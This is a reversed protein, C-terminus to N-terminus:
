KSKCPGSTNQSYFSLANGERRSSTNVYAVPDEAFTRPEHTQTHSAIRNLSFFRSLMITSGIYTEVPFVAATKQQVGPQRSDSEHTIDVRIRELVVHESQQNLV